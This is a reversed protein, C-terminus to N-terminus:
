FDGVDWVLYTMQYVSLSEFNITSLIKVLNGLVYIELNDYVHDTIFNEVHCKNRLKWCFATLLLTEWM